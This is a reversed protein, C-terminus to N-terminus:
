EKRAVLRYGNQVVSWNGNIRKVLPGFLIREQYQGNSDHDLYNPYETWNVDPLRLRGRQDWAYMQTSKRLIMNLEYARKFLDGLASKFKREDVFDVLDKLEEATSDATSPLDVSRTLGSAEAIHITASRWESIAPNDGSSIKM